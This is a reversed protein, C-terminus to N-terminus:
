EVVNREIPDVKVGKTKLAAVAREIEAADGTLEVDM